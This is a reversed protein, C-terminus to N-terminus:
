RLRALFPVSWSSSFGAGSISRSVPLFGTFSPHPWNSELSVTNERGAPAFTLSSSGNLVLDIKYALPAGGNLGGPGALVVNRPNASAFDGEVGIAPQTYVQNQFNGRSM